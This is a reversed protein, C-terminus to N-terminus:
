RVASTSPKLYEIALRARRSRWLKQQQVAERAGAVHEAIENREQVISKM